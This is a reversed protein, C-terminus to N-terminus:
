RLGHFIPLFSPPINKMHVTGYIDQIPFKLPDEGNEDHGDM